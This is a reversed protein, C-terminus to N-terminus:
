FTYSANMNFFGIQSYYRGDASPSKSPSVLQDNRNEGNTSVPVFAIHTYSGALAWHDGFSKRLGATFYLRFSDITSADITRKPVASTTFATSGFLEFSPDLFYAAGARFGGANNWNRPLNLVIDTPGVASSGDANTECAKGPEVVCQRDFVSWRVFEGDARLEVKDGPLLYSAGLRVIDPYTQVFDIKKPM